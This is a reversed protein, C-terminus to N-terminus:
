SNGPIRKPPRSWTQARFARGGVEGPVGAASISVTCGTSGTSRLEPLWALADASNELGLSQVICGSNLVVWNPLGNDKIRLKSYHEPIWAAMLLQGRLVMLSIHGWAWLFILSWPWPWLCWSARGLSSHFQKTLPRWAWYFCQEETEFRTSVPLSRSECTPRVGWPGTSSPCSPQWSFMWCVLGPFSVASYSHLVWCTCPSFSGCHFALAPIQPSQSTACNVPWLVHLVSVWLEKRPIPSM